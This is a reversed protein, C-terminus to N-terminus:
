ETPLMISDCKLYSMCHYIVGKELTFEDGMKKLRYYITKDIVDLYEAMDKVTVNGNMNLVSFATRFEEAADATTKSRGNRLKGAEPTGQAPLSSLTESADM